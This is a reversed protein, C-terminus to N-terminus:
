SVTGEPFQDIHQAVGGPKALWLADRHTLIHDLALGLARLRFPQGVILPRLVINFILPCEPQASCAYRDHRNLDM